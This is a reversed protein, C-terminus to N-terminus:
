DAACADCVREVRFGKARLKEVLGDPGLLHLSGVVVLTDDTGPARLRAEIRPLWAANREVDLLRYSEPTKRAMEARMKADLRAVDGARWWAHMDMLERTAKRPDTLFEDLSAAQEAHPVADMARMQDDVTELGGAPKGAEAARAMLHRDLGLESEFGMAKAIGLVLGMSVAWPESGELAQMSGGSATVLTQLRDFTPKPLVGSLTEGGEYAMYDQIKRLTEPSTMAGPDVEFLLSEADDFARDVEGPLPYDDSRLLHFSGLLYVANDADSVKWLLPHRASADPAPSQAAAPLALAAALLLSCLRLPM